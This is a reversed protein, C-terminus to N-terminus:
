KFWIKSVLKRGIFKNALRKGAKGPKGEAVDEVMQVWGLLRALRYLIGRTKSINTM